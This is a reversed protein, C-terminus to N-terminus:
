YVTVKAFNENLSRKNIIWSKTPSRLKTHPDIDKRNTFNQGPVYPKSRYLHKKGFFGWWNMMNQLFFFESVGLNLSTAL